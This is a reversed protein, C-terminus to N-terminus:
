INLFDELAYEKLLAQYEATYREDAAKAVDAKKDLRDALKTLGAKRAEQADAVLGLFLHNADCCKDWLEGFRKAIPYLTRFIPMGLAAFARAVDYKNGIFLPHNEYVFMVIEFDEDSIEPKFNDSMDAIFHQGLIDIFDNKDM